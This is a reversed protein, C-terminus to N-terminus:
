LVTTFVRIDSTDFTALNRVAISINATNTPPFTDEIETLGVDVVGAVSLPECKYRLIIVDEGIQQAQGLLAIADKVQQEGADQDGGGFLTGDVTIDVDVFMQEDTPRSFNISHPTGQSDTIVVTVGNPGPDRFTEIGAAKTDFIAQALETDDGGSVVVEISKGPLGDPNTILTVNEFVFAQVVNDVLRVGARIAEVTASGSIRLLEERRIRFAQDSEINRGLAADDDNIGAVRDTSFSLQPNATGGTVEIASGPGDTDSVIRVAGNADLTSLGTTDAEIADAVELATANAIDSFDVTNFTVTQAVAEDDVKITLTQGDSLAFPETLGSDLAAQATWGSVPTEITDITGASGVIPGFEESQATVAINAPAGTTNSVEETTVFREGTASLSVVRGVALITGPQLNVRLVVTSQTAPLRIAGTIAAVNDLSAGQASDPYQSAYVANALEWLEAVKDGFVSDLQGLVSEPTTNIAPGFSTRHDDTLEQLVDEITKSSFGESTVGFSTM